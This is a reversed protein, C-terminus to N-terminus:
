VPIKNKFHDIMKGMHHEYFAGFDKFGEPTHEWLVYLVGRLRMSPTKSSFESKIEDVKAVEQPVIEKPSVYVAVVQNAYGMLQGAKEPSLEQTGVVIKVTRDRRTAVSEIQASLLLGEM